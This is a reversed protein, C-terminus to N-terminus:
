GVSGGERDLVFGLEADQIFGRRFILSPRIPPIADLTQRVHALLFLVLLAKRVTNTGIDKGAPPVIRFASRQTNSDPRSHASDSPQFSM